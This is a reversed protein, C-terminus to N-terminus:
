LRITCSTNTAFFFRCIQGLCYFKGNLIDRGFFLQTGPVKCGNHVVPCFCLLRHSNQLIAFSVDSNLLPAANWGTLIDCSCNLLKAFSVRVSMNWNLSVTLLFWRSTQTSESSSGSTLLSGSLWKSVNEKLLTFFSSSKWRQILIRGFAESASLEILRQLPASSAFARPTRMPTDHRRSAGCCSAANLFEKSFDNDVNRKRSRSLM